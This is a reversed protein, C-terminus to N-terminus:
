CLSFLSFLFAVAASFDTRKIRSNGAAAFHWLGPIKLCLLTTEGLDLPWFDSTLHPSRQNRRSIGLSLRKWARRGTELSPRSDEADRPEHIRGQMKM